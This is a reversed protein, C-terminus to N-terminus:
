DKSFLQSVMWLAFSLAMIATGVSAITAVISM